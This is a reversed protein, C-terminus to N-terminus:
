APATPRSAEHAFDRRSSGAPQLMQLRAARSRRAERAGLAERCNRQSQARLWRVFSEVPYIVAGRRRLMFPPGQQKRRWDALMWPSTKLLAAVEAPTLFEATLLSVVKSVEVAEVARSRALEPIEKRDMDVGRAEAV